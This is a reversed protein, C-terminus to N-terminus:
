PATPLPPEGDVLEMNSLGRWGQEIFGRDGTSILRVATTIAEGHARALTDDDVPGYETLARTADDVSLLLWVQGLDQAPDGAGAEGWDLIAALRGDRMVINRAHIDAHVWRTAEWPLDAAERWARRAAVGDWDLGQDRARQDLNALHEAVEDARSALPTTRWPTTPADPPAPIHIEKLARGLDTAGEKTLPVITADVGDFWPVVSWSWPYGRGRRGVRSPVPAGFSWRLGLRPLWEIERLLLAASAALRPMRVALHEGLRMTVNDWGEFREGLDLGALDPHQDVLLGRVLAPTIDVETPPFAPPPPM